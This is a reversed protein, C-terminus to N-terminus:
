ANTALKELNLLRAIDLSRYDFRLLERNASADVVIKRLDDASTNLLLPRVQEYFRASQSRVYTPLAGYTDTLYVASIPYWDLKSAILSRVYLTLDAELFSTFSVVSHEHAENILDAHLSIRRLSMERNRQELSELYPRFAVYEVAEGTRDHARPKYLPMSLLDNAFSFAKNEMALAIFSILADHAFYQFVDGDWRTYQRNLPFIDWGRMLKEFFTHIVDASRANQNTLIERFARYLNESVPRIAKIGEYVLKSQNPKNALELHFSGSEEAISDLIIEADHNITASRSSKVRPSELQFLPSATTYTQGEFSPKKGIPPAVHVPEDFVWRVVKEFNVAEADLSSMDFYLRTSMYSPLRPKGEDDLDVVIAAFKDQGTDNYVKASIIQAETGVGGQRSDAREVYGADCIMLVKKMEPDNVMSEMFVFTDQGEKLHWKDLHADIGSARLSSALRLVWEEHDPSSWRYSIFIKPPKPEDAGRESM